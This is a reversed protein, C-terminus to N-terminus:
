WSFAEEMRTIIDAMEDSGFLSAGGSKWPDISVGPGSTISRVSFSTKCSIIRVWVHYATDTAPYRSGVGFVKFCSHEFKNMEGQLVTYLAEQWQFCKYGKGIASLLNGTWGGCLVGDRMEKVKAYVADSLQTAQSICAVPSCCRCGSVMEKSNKPCVARLKSELLNKDHWLSDEILWLNPDYPSAPGLPVGEPGVVPNGYLGLSDTRAIIDNGCVVYLYVVSDVVDREVWRGGSPEYNRYNYYVMALDDDAYESSFRWPNALASEGSQDPVTGFPAYEYHAAVYVNVALGESINKNGDHTYCVVCNGCLSALPKTAVPDTPDWVYVNGCNDAVQLYGDYVFRQTSKTARRGMRDYSMMILSPTSSNPTSSNPTSSNILTWQVPRNEGNYQVQWIGTSTQILTQNGDDDFQPHFEERLSASDCLNSIQTYQNLANATYTRNTGLDTSTIRNGIDDFQYAYETMATGLEGLKAASILEGRANYGYVDTRNESMASGSRVIQIRRGAADYAYDYQSIVNTPTANCVQLLQNNADYQWSATLGNPYSLSSKQDSGPLYSWTFPTGSGNALMSEIRATASDYGITTQRTGNLAYGATRGYEDWFREISNAVAVGIVTENTLSGFADYLFTTVGAADRAETQRGLADYFLSVTPTDDSYVTNTLNGWGDYSYDTAVGRAWVRRSLKGEPTYCYTPGKGDAYIKNTMCNSAEDYLWTTVDGSDPGLSENRYTTMSVKEGFEDYSYDVPYTAGRQAVVRGEADYATTVTNTLPDTVSTQRSLADYGYTIVYSTKACKVM